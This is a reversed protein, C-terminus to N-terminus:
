VMKASFHTRFRKLTVCNTVKQDHSLQLICWKSRHDRLHGLVNSIFGAFLFGLCFDLFRFNLVSNSCCKSRFVYKLKVLYCINIPKVIIGIDKRNNWTYSETCSGMLNFRFSLQEWVIPQNKPHTKAPSYQRFTWSLPIAQTGLPFPPVPVWLTSLSGNHSMSGYFDVASAGSRPKKSIFQTQLRAM